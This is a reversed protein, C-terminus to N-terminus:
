DVDEGPRHKAPAAATPAPHVVAQDYHWVRGQEDRLCVRRQGRSGDYLDVVAFSAPNPHDPTTFELEPYM